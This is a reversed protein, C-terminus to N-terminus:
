LAEETDVNFEYGVIVEIYRDSLIEEVTIPAEEAGLAISHTVIIVIAVVLLIVTTMLTSRKLRDRM